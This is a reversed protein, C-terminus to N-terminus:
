WKSTEVEPVYVTQDFRLSARTRELLTRIEQPIAKVTLPEAPKTVLYYCASSGHFMQTDYSFLGRRSMDAFSRVYREMGNEGWGGADSEAEERVICETAQSTAQFYQVLKVAAERDARVTEPLQRLGATTFHGIHGNLDLAFWDWDRDFEESQDISPM